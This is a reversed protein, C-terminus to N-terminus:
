RMGSYRDREPDRKHPTRSKLSLVVLEDFTPSPKEDWQKRRHTQLKWKALLAVAEKRGETSFRIGTSRRVRRGSADVYSAWYYPSRKRNYLGDRDQKRKPM